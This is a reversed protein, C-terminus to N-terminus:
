FTGNSPFIFFPKNFVMFVIRMLMILIKLCSVACLMVNYYFGGLMVENAVCYRVNLWAIEQRSM